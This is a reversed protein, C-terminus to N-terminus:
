AREVEVIINDGVLEQAVMIISSIQDNTIVPEPDTNNDRVISSFKIVVIDEIIKAM